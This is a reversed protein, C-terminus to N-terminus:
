RLNDSTSAPRRLTQNVRSWIRRRRETTERCATSSMNAKQFFDKDILLYNM